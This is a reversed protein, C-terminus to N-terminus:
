RRVVEVSVEVDYTGRSTRLPQTLSPFVGGVAKWMFGLADRRVEEKVLNEPCNMGWVMVSIKVTGKVMKVERIRGTGGYEWQLRSLANETGDRASALILQTENTGEGLYLLSSLILLITAFLVLAELSVQGKM